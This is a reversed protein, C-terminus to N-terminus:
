YNEEIRRLNEKHKYAYCNVIQIEGIGIFDMYLAWAMMLEVLCARAKQGNLIRQTQNWERNNLVNRYMMCAYTVNWLLFAHNELLDVSVRRGGAMLFNEVWEEESAIIFRDSRNRVVKRGNINNEFDAVLLFFKFPQGPKYFNAYEPHEEIYEKPFTELEYEDVGSYILIELFFHWADALEINYEVLHGQASSPKNTNVCEFANVMETFAEGLEELFRGLFDKMLKQNSKHTLDVPYEPLGEIKIYHELLQKQMALMQMLTNPKVGIKEM